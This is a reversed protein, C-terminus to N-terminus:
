ATEELKEARAKLLAAFKTQSAKFLSLIEALLENRGKTKSLDDVGKVDLVKGFGFGGKIEFKQNDKAFAVAIKAASVLDDKKLAVAVPGKLLAILPELPTGELAHKALTNKIVAFTVGEARFKSRVDNITNVDVGSTDVVVVSEIGDFLKKYQEIVASKEVRNM